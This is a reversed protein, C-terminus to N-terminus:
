GTRQEDTSSPYGPRQQRARLGERVWWLPQRNVLRPAGAAYGLARESDKHELFHRIVHVHATHAWPRGQAYRCFAACVVSGSACGVVGFACAVAGSAWRVASRVDLACPVAHSATRQHGSMDVRQVQGMGGKVHGVDLSANPFFNYDPPGRGRTRVRGSKWTVQFIRRSQRWHVTHEAPDHAPHSAHECPVWM